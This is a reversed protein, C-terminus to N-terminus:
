EIVHDALKLIDESIKVGLFEANDLNIVLRPVVVSQIPIDAPSEGKLVRAAILGGAYGSEYFDFGVAALAGREVYEPDNMIIPIQSEQSVKVISDFATLVTNDGVIYFADINKDALTQASLLVESTSTISTEILDIGKKLCLERAKLLAAESCLESTNRITGLTKLDPMIQLIFEITKEVPPFSGVGTINPAHDDPSNAAGAIYPDYIATFVVNISNVKGVTAQLCPTTLPVIMDVKRSIYSDLISQITLFDAQANKYELIINSGDKFGSDELAKIFGKRANDIAPDPAFQFIGITYHDQKMKKNCSSLMILILLLIFIRLLKTM